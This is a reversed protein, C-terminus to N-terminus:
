ENDNGSNSDTNNNDTDEQYHRNDESSSFNAKVKHKAKEAAEAASDMYENARTDEFDKGRFKFRVGFILAIFMAPLIFWFAFFLLLVLVTVPVSLIVEGKNVIDLFNSNGQKILKGLWAFFGNVSDGFRNKSGTSKSEQESYYNDQGRTSYSGKTSYSNGGSHSGDNSSNGRTSYSAAGRSANANSHWQTSDSDDKEPQQAQKGQRELYILAELMDNDNNELAAKAEEYTCDVKLRLKEVQELTAM